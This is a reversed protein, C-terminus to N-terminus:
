FKVSFYINQRNESRNNAPVLDDFYQYRDFFLNISSNTKPISYVLGGTLSRTGQSLDQTLATLAEGDYHQQTYGGNFTLRKTVPVALTAGSTSRHVDLYNSYFFLASSVSAPDSQSNTAGPLTLPTRSPDSGTAAALSLAARDDHKVSEYLSDLSLTAKRDFLPLALTVGGGLANYRRGVSPAFAPGFIQQALLDPQVDTQTQAGFRLNGKVGAFVLPFRLQATTTQANATIGNFSIGNPSSSIPFTLAGVSQLVGNQLPLALNATANDPLASTQPADATDTTTLGPVNYFAFLAPASGANNFLRPQGDFRPASQQLSFTQEGGLLSFHFGAIAAADGGLPATPPQMNSTTFPIELFFSHVAAADAHSGFAGSQSEGFVGRSVYSVPRDQGGFVPQNLVSVKLVRNLSVGGTARAPVFAAAVTALAICLVACAPLGAFVVRKRNPVRHFM